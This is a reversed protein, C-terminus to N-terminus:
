LLKFIRSMYLVQKNKCDPWDLWSCQWPWCATQTPLATQVNLLTPLPKLRCTFRAAWWTPTWQLFLCNKSMALVSPARFRNPDRPTKRGTQLNAKSINMLLLSLFQPSRYISYIPMFYLLVECICLNISYHFFNQWEGNISFALPFVIPSVFISM